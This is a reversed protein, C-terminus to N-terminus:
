TAEVMGELIVVIEFDDKELQHRSVDWFPSREDIEHSIILPSVLFLRDDGTEFGVSLDTQDLPIFEGEQTQKSKILKARISAEVIHSDRLDGVRFMLCLRDDRLSVVAHSSFVLTEARKNPQSIKVFMCGVMFANVMSGLIAQLLLLVIGEPCKDTIVRHGYGIPPETSPVKSVLPPAPVGFPLAFPGWLLLLVKPPAPVGLPQLSWRAERPIPSPVLRHRSSGPM